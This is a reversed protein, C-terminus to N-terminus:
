TAIAIASLCVQTIRGNVVAQYKDESSIRSTM